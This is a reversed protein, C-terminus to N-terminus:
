NVWDFELFKSKDMQQFKAFIVAPSSIFFVIMIGIMLLLIRRGIFLGRVGRM